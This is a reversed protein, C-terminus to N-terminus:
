GQAGIAQNSLGRGDQEGFAARVKGSRLIREMYWALIVFTASVCLQAVIAPVFLVVGVQFIVIWCVMAFLQLFAVFSIWAWCLAILCRRGWERRRLFGLGGVLSASGFALLFACSGYRLSVIGLGHGTSLRWLGIASLCGTAVAVFLWVVGTFFVTRRRRDDVQLSGAASAPDEHSPGTPTV